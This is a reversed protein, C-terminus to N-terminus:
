LRQYDFTINGTQGQLNYFDIFRIKYYYGNSDKLLYYRNPLIMYNFSNDVAKWDFGIFDANRSLSFTSSLLGNITEYDVYGPISDKVLKLGTIGNWRNSLGGSVLYYRYPSGLPQDFYTHSYRTFVIDWDNKKPAVEVSKGGNDFSFYMLSYDINKPLTFQIPSTSNFDCYSFRYGTATAEELRLKKFRQSATAGTYFVRGRDIVMVEGSLLGNINWNGIATSDDDLHDNDLVWPKGVTDVTTFNNAGTHCVFMYKGSNLYVHFGNASAEFALDWDKLDVTVQLNKQLSVYVQKDYTPDINAVVRTLSGPPPLVLAKDEKECSAFTIFSIIYIFHIYRM